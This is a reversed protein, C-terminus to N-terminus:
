LMQANCKELKGGKHGRKGRKGREKPENYLSTIQGLYGLPAINKKHGGGDRWFFFTIRMQFGTDRDINYM